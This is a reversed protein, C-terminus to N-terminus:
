CHSKPHVTGSICLLDGDDQFQKRILNRFYVGLDHQHKNIGIHSVGLM